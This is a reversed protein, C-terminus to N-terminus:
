NNDDGYRAVLNQRSIRISEISDMRCIDQEVFHWAINKQECADFFRDYNINGSLMETMGPQGDPYTVMDKTHTALVRDGHDLIFQTEDMGAYHAWYADFCLKVANPDTADLIHEMMTKGAYHQFEWHHNHYSFQMGAARIKEIAPAMEVFFRMYNDYTAEMGISGVGVINCGLKQHFAIVADTDEKVRVPPVHTLIAQLGADRLASVIVDESVAAGIGSTHVGRYGMEALAQMTARFEEETQMHDRVTYLQAGFRRKIM